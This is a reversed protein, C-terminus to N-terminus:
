DEQTLPDFIELPSNVPESVPITIRNNNHTLPFSPTDKLRKSRKTEQIFIQPSQPNVSKVYVQYKYGNRIFKALNLSLNDPLRGLYEKIPTASFVKIKRAAPKLIVKQGIELGAIVQPSAPKILPVIKSIGSEEIFSIIKINPSLITTLNKAKIRHKLNYLNKKAISNTSSIKLVKRFTDKALTPQDTKLFAVGLRNLAPPNKPSFKIIEQNLSIALQWNNNFAAKIAKEELTTTDPLDM